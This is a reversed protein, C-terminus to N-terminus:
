HSLGTNLSSMCLAHLCGSVVATGYLLNFYVMNACDAATNVSISTFGYNFPFLFESLHISNIM